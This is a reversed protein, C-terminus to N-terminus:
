FVLGAAIVTTVALVAQVLRAQVKAAPSSPPPPTASPAGAAEETAPSSPPPPTASPAGTPEDAALVNIKVKMGNKCHAGVGCVFWRRGAEELTVQDQGTTLANSNEPINCSAFDAGNVEVVTHSPKSYKFVAIRLFCDICTENDNTYRTGSFSSSLKGVHATSCLVHISSATSHQTGLTDGVKFQKTEAWASYNFKLTWGNDDGVWHETATAPAPLFAVALAAAVLVLMKKSAM